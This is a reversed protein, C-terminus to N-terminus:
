WLIKCFKKIHCKDPNLHLGSEQCKSLVELLYIDHEIDTKAHIKIDDSVPKVNPIGSLTDDMVKQFLDQSSVLGFPLRKFCFRGYGPTNFTTLLMSKNDLPVNWYGSRADLTSFVTSGCLEPLIDDLTPSYHHPRKICKNLDKPDLCLRITGDPKSAVVISNVWDTPCDVPKIIDEKVKPIIAEPVRRSAHRVPVADSTLQIKYVTDVCGIGKFLEPFMEIIESKPDGSHGLPLAEKWKLKCKALNFSRVSNIYTNCSSKNNKKLFQIYRLNIADSKGLITVCDEQTVIFQVYKCCDGHIAKVNIATNNLATLRVSTSELPMHDFLLKYVRIPMISIDAGTDIQAYAGMNECSNNFSIKVKDDISPINNSDVKCVFYSNNNKQENSDYEDYVESTM